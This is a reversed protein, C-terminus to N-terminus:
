EPPLTRMITFLRAIRTPSAKSAVAPIVAHEAFPVGLLLPWEVGGAAAAVAPDPAVVGAGDLGAVSTGM